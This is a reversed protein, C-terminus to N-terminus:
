VDVRMVPVPLSDIIRVSSSISAEESFVRSVFVVPPMLALVTLVILPNALSM